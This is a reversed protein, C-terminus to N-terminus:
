NLVFDTILIDSIEADPAALQLRRLMQARLRAMGSPRMLDEEEVARLYTNLTDRIRPMLKEISHEYKDTTELSLSIKLYRSKAGPGLTVVLPELNVFIVDKAAAAPGHAAEQGHEAAAEGHEGEAVCKQSSPALFYAAGAAAAGMAIASAASIVIPIVPSKKPASAAEEAAPSSEEEKSM